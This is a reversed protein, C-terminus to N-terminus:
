SRALTSKIVEIFVTDEKQMVSRPDFLAKGNQIRGIVPPSAQRLHALFVDPHHLDLSLVFTPLTEEPLSGGGITSREEVVEGQGIERQWHEARIRLDEAQASIMQWVPIKSEAEGTLYHRLTASLAALCLKDARIARALPHRKIKALLETRGLIIGAQPGGLLKDGSFCVLDAGAKISDQVM